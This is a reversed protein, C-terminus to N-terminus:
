TTVRSDWTDSALMARARRDVGKLMAPHPFIWFRGQQLHGFVIAALERPDMGLADMSAQAAAQFTTSQHLPATESPSTSFINTRVAGPCIVAASLAAQAERLELQLTETLGVIAHKSAVYSAMQPMAMVGAMSATNVVVGPEGGALMRPLFHHIGHVVGMLNVGMLWSWREPAQEWSRGSSMVGANNFLLHVRGHRQWALEALAAVSDSRSVDVVATSLRDGLALEARLRELAAADVDAAVVSMGREAAAEVLGRGIGNAAGTVVAVRDRFQTFPRLNM